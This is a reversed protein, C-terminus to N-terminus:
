PERVQTGSKAGNLVNGVVLPGVGDVLEIAEVGGPAVNGGAKLCAHPPNRPKALLGGFAHRCVCREQVTVIPVRESAERSGAADIASSPMVREVADEDSCDVVREHVEEEVCWVRGGM